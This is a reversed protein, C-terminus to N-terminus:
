VVWTSPKESLKSAQDSLLRGHGSGNAVNTRRAIARTAPPPHRATREPRRGETYERGIRAHSTKTLTRASPQASGGAGGAGQTGVDGM